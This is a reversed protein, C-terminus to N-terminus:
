SMWRSYEKPLLQLMQELPMARTLYTRDFQRFTAPLRRVGGMGETNNPDKRANEPRQGTAGRRVEGDQNRYLRHAVAWFCPHSFIEQRSTTQEAMEGWPSRRSGLAVQAMSGHLRVLRWATRAILRYRRRRGKRSDVEIYHAAELPEGKQKGSRRLLSQIMALSIWAWMGTEREIAVPDRVNELVATHLYVGLDYSTEFTRAADLHFEWPLDDTYNPDSLIQVPPEGKPEDLWESFLGLGAANLSAVKLATM